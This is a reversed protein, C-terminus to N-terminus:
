ERDDGRVPQGFLREEVIPTVLDAFIRNGASNLHTDMPYYLPSEQARRRFEETVVVGDIDGRKLAELAAQDFVETSLIGRPVKSGIKRQFEWVEPSTFGGEPILLALLDAGHIDAVGKVRELIRSSSEIGKQIEESHLDPDKGSNKAEARGLASILLFPNLKGGRVNERFGSDLAKFREREADTMSSLIKRNRRKWVKRIIIKEWRKQNAKVLHAEEDARGPVALAVLHPFFRQMTRVVLTADTEAGPEGGGEMIWAQSLDDRPLLGILVLDPKLLPIAREATMVYNLPGFGPCGLNLIEVDHGRDRLNEELVKVWTDEISVGWGFTYSDGIVVVRSAHQKKVTTDFDRIGLNNIQAVFSFESAEYLASVNPSFLLGRSLFPETNILGLIRDVGLVLLVSFVVSGCVLAFNALRRNM